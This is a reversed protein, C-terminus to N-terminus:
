GPTTRDTRRPLPATLTGVPSVYRPPPEPIRVLGRGLGKEVHVVLGNVFYSARGAIEGLAQRGVRWGGTYLPRCACEWVSAGKEDAKTPEV